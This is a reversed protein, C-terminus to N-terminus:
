YRRPNNRRLTLRGSRITDASAAFNAARRCCWAPGPLSRSALSYSRERLPLPHQGRCEEAPDEPCCKVPKPSRSPPATCRRVTLLILLGIRHVLNILWTFLAEPVTM